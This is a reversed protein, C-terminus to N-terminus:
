GFRVLRRLRRGAQKRLNTIAPTVHVAVGADAEEEQELEAFSTRMEKQVCM